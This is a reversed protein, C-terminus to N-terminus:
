QFLRLCRVVELYSLACALFVALAIPVAKSSGLKPALFGVTIMYPVWSALTGFLVLWAHQGVAAGGRTEGIFLYAVVTFVPVLTALGSLLRNGGQELGVIAVTVTGGALFYIFLSKLQGVM